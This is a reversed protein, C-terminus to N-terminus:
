HVVSIEFIIGFTESCVSTLQPQSFIGLDRWIYVVIQPSIYVYMEFDRVTGTLKILINELIKVEVRESIGMFRNEDM